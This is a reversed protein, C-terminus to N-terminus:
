VSIYTLSELVFHAYANYEFHILSYITCSYQIMHERFFFLGSFHFHFCFSKYCADGFFGHFHLHTCKMSLNWNTCSKKFNAGTKLSCHCAFYPMCRNKSLSFLQDPSELSMSQKLRKKFYAKSILSLITLCYIWIYPRAYSSVFASM